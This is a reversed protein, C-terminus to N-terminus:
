VRERCSARGIEVLECMADADPKEAAEAIVLHAGRPSWPGVVVHEDPAGALLRPDAGTPRVAWAHTKVGGGPAVACALWEGDGSWRVQVVPDPGLDVVTAEGRGRVPQVWVQPWGGRDSIYATRTGDPSLTAGWSAAVSLLEVADLQAGTVANM